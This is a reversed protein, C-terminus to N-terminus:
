PNAARIEDSTFGYDEWTVIRWEPENTDPNVRQEFTFVSDGEAYAGTFGGELTGETVTLQLRYHNRAEYQTKDDNLPAIEPPESIEIEIDQYKNFVYIAAEREQVIDDFVIDDEIKDTGRDASYQFGIDWYASMYLDVDETMYGRQWKERLLRNIENLVPDQPYPPEVDGCGAFLLAGCLLSVLGSRVLVNKM